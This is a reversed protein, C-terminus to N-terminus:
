LIYLVCHLTCHMLIFGLRAIILFRRLLWIINYVLVSLVVLILLIYLSFNWVAYYIFPLIFSSIQEALGEVRRCLGGGATTTCADFSLIRNSILNLLQLLFFCSLYLPLVTIFFSLHFIIFPPLFYFIVESELLWFILQIM